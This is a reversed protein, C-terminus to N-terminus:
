HTPTQKKSKAREWKQLTGFNVLEALEYKSMTAIERVIASDYTRIDNNNLHEAVKEIIEQGTFNAM